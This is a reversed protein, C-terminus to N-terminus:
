LVHVGGTRLLAAGDARAARAARAPVRAALLEAVRARTAGSRASVRDRPGDGEGVPAPGTPAIEAGESVTQAPGTDFAWCGAADVVIRRGRYELSAAVDSEAVGARFPSAAALRSREAARDRADARFGVRYSLEAADRVKTGDAYTNWSTSTPRRRASWAAFRAAMAAADVGALYPRRRPPGTRDLVYRTVGREDRTATLSM